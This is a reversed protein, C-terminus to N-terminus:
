KYARNKKEGLYLFTFLIVENRFLNVTTEIKATEHISILNDRIEKISKYISIITILIIVIAYNVYDNFLWLVVSFLQFMYFPDKFEKKLLELVSDIKVDLECPGYLNYQFQIEKENLGNLFKRSLVDLSTNIEFIIANFSKSIPSYAYTFM